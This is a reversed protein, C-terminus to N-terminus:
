EKTFTTRGDTADALLSKGDASIKLRLPGTLAGPDAARAAMEKVRKGAVSEPSLILEGGDRRWRGAVPVPGLTLRYTGDTAIALKPDGLSEFLSRAEPSVRASIETKGTWAGPLDAAPDRCGAIAALGFLLAVRVM